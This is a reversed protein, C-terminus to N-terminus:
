QAEEQDEEEKVCPRRYGLDEKFKFKSHLRPHGLLGPEEAEKEQTSLNCAHVAM